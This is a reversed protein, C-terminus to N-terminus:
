RIGLREPLTAVPDPEFALGARAAGERDADSDGCHLARSASVRLRELALEFPRPDPKQAGAEASSVTVDFHQTLGLGELHETLSVDWNAVCALSLGAAQLADLAPVVNPLLRFGIAADFDPAFAVPDLDAQCADLFVGACDRRLTTLTALDSGTHARPLYYEVEAAFARSVDAYKREVGHAALARGLGPVPDALEVLTGLADLTVADLDAAVVM